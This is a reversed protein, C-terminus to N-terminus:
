RQTCRWSRSADSKSRTLARLAFHLRTAPRGAPQGTAPGTDKPKVRVPKARHASLPFMASSPRFSTQKPHRGAVLSSNNSCVSLHHNHMKNSVCAHAWRAHFQLTHRTIEEASCCCCPPWPRRNWHVPALGGDHTGSSSVWDEWALALAAWLSTM